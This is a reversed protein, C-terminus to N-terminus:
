ESSEYKGYTVSICKMTMTKFKPGRKTVSLHVIVLRNM